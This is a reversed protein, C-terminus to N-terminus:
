GQSQDRRCETRSVLDWLSSFKGPVIWVVVTNNLVSGKYIVWPACFPCPCCSKDGGRQVKTMWLPLFMVQAVFNSQWRKKEKKKKKKHNWRFGGEQLLHLRTNCWNQWPGQYCGLGHLKGLHERTFSASSFPFYHLLEFIHVIKVNSGTYRWLYYLSTKQIRKRLSKGLVLLSTVRKSSFSFQLQITILTEQNADTRFRSTCTGKWCIGGNM